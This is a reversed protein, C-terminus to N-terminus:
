PQRSASTSSTSRAPATQGSASCGPGRDVLAGNYSTQAPLNVTLTASEANAGTNLITIEYAYQDGVNHPTPSTTVAVKKDPGPGGGGGGGGGGGSAGGGDGGSTSGGGGLLCDAHGPKFPKSSAARSGRM